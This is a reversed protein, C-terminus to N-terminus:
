KESGATELRGASNLGAAKWLQDYCDKARAIIADRTSDGLTSPHPCLTMPGKYGLEALHRVVAVLDAIGEENPFLRNDRSISGLPQDAPVNALQVSVIQDASLGRLQDISGGGVFWHWTDVVFGINSAGVTKLLTLIAETQYLFEYNGGERSGGDALFRIGLRLGKKDLVEALQGIRRRHTEFNEHYPLTDSAPLITALCSEVGIEQAVECVYNLAKLRKEFDSDEADLRIDLDLGSIRLNASKLLQAASDLGLTRARKLLDNTDVDIGRFGHTLAIEILESQRASIGLASANLCKYM